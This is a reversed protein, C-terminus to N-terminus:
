YHPPKEQQETSAGTEVQEELDELKDSLLKVRLSLQDIQHQQDTIVNNLESITHDQFALRSQLDTLLAELDDRSNDKSNTM